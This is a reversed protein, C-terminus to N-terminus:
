HLVFYVGIAGVAVGLVFVGLVVNVLKDMDVVDINSM